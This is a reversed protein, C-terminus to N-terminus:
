AVPTLAELAARARNVAGASANVHPLRVDPTAIRGEAHLVAKIVAPNPEAFLALVLPLLAEADSRSGRGSVLAAFQETALHASAAIAGTAGLAMFAHIFPDDGCLIAFEDPAGALLRVASEDVAGPALKMGVVGEIAALELLAGASLRTGTRAPVEYVLVPVPSAAAVAQFHAIVGRESPRAYYPVVALSATVGPVDALAEHRAITGRTDVTGAGAILQAGRDACVVAATAIVADSESPTLAFPEGTSGLPVLGAAGGDILEGALRELADLDVAGDPSFPTILPLYLGAISM